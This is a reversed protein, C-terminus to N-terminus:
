GTWNMYGIFDKFMATGFGPATPNVVVMLGSERDYIVWAQDPQGERVIKWALDEAEPNDAYRNLLQEIQVSIEDTSLEGFGHAAGDDGIHRAITEAIEENDPADDGGPLFPLVPAHGRDEDLIQKAADKLLSREVEDRSQGCPSLGVVGLFNSATWGVCHNDRFYKDIADNIVACNAVCLGTQADIVPPLPKPPAPKPANAAQVAARYAACSASYMNSSDCGPEPVGNSDCGDGGTQCPDAGTPDRDTTVRGAVYAYASVAPKRLRPPMPDVATFQGTGPSYVRDRTSYQGNLTADQYMGAFRAPNDM